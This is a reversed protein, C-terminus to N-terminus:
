QIPRKTTVTGTKTPSESLAASCRGASCSRQPCSPFLACDSLQGCACSATALVNKPAVLSAIVPLAVVSALGIKKLVDRRSQGAFTSKLERELLDNESLQDIALWVLDDNVGEGVESSVLRAIDTVSNKGDCSKWVIAATQNLCHAKNSDLDYVLVEGPVEQVVLGNTRATPYDVNTM